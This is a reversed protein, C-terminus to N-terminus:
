YVYADYTINGCGFLQGATLQFCHRSIDDYCSLHMKEAFFQEGNLRFNKFVMFITNKTTNNKTTNCQMHM